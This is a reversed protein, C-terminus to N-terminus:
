SMLQLTKDENDFKMKINM